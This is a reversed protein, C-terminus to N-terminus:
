NQITRMDSRHSAVIRQIGVGVNSAGGELMDSGVAGIPIPGDSGDHGHRGHGKDTQGKGLRSRMTDKVVNGSGDRQNSGNGVVGHGGVQSLRLDLGLEDARAGLQATNRTAGSLDEVNSINVPSNQQNISCVISKSVKNRLNTVM